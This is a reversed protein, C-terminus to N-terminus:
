KSKTKSKSTKKSSSTPASPAVDAASGVPSPVSTPVVCPPVSVGGDALRRLRSLPYRPRFNRMCKPKLPNCSPSVVAMRPRLYSFFVLAV